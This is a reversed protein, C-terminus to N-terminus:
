GVKGLRQAKCKGNTPLTSQRSALVKSIPKSKSNQINTYGYRKIYEQLAALLRKCDRKLAENEEQLALIEQTLIDENNM